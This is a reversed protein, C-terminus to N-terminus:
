HGTVFILYHGFSNTSEWPIWSKRLRRLFFHFYPLRCILYLKSWAACFLKKVSAPITTTTPVSCISIVCQFFQEQNRAHQACTQGLIKQKTKFLVVFYVSSANRTWPCPLPYFGCTTSWELSIMRDWFVFNFVSGNQELWYELKKYVSYIRLLNFILKKM